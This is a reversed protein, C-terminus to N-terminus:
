NLKIVFFSQNIRAIVFYKRKTKLLIRSNEYFVNCQFSRNYAINETKLSVLIDNTQSTKQMEYKLYNWIKMKYLIINEVINYRQKAFIQSKTFNLLELNDRKM